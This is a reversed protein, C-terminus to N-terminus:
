SDQEEYTLGKKYFEKYRKESEKRERITEKSPRLEPYNAQLSRRARSVSGFTAIGHMIRFPRDVFVKLLYDSKLNLGETKHGVYYLYLSMDDARATESYELINKVDKNVKLLGM